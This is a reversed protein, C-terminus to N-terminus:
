ETAALLADLAAAANERQAVPADAGEAYAHLRDLAFRKLVDPMEEFRPRVDDGNAANAVIVEVLTSDQPRELHM